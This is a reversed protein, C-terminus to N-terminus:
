LELRRALVQMQVQEQVQPVVLGWRPVALPLLLLLLLLLAQCHRPMVPIPTSSKTNLTADMTGDSHGSHLCPTALSKNGYVSESM